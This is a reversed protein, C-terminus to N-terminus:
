RGAARSRLLVSGLRSRWSRLKSARSKGCYTPRQWPQNHTVLGREARDSLGNVFQSPTITLVIISSDEFHVDLTLPHALLCRVAHSSLSSGAFSHRRTTGGEPSSTVVIDHEKAFRAFSIPEVTPSDVDASVRFSPSASGPGSTNVSYMIFKGHEQAVREVARAKVIKFGTFLIVGGRLFARQVRGDYHAQLATIADIFQVKSMTSHTIVTSTTVTM